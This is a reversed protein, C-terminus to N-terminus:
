KTQKITIVRFRGREKMVTIYFAFTRAGAARGLVMFGRNGTDDTIVEPSESWSVQTGEFQPIVQTQYVHTVVGRGSSEITLPSTMEIMAKLDGGQAKRVFDRALALYKEREARVYYDKESLNMRAIARGMESDPQHYIKTINGSSCCTLFVAILPWMHRLHTKM